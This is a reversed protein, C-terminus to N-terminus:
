ETVAVAQQRETRRLPHRHHSGGGVFSERGVIVPRPILISVEMREVQVNVVADWRCDGRREGGDLRTRCTDGVRRSAQPMAVVRATDPRSHGSRSTSVHSHDDHTKIRRVLVAARDSHQPM